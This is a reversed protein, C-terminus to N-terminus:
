KSISTDVGSGEISCNSLNAVGDVNVPTTLVKIEDSTALTFGQPPINPQVSTNGGCYLCMEQTPSYVRGCKPCCWGMQLPGITYNM